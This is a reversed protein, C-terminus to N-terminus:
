GGLRKKLDLVAAEAATLVPRGTKAEVAARGPGMSIQGLLILDCDSLGAAVSAVLNDHGAMDGKALFALAGPVHSASVRLPRRHALAAATLARDLLNVTGPDTALAGVHRAGSAIVADVASAYSSLVPVGMFPRGADVCPTFFSGTVLIADSGVSECYQMLALTRRYCEANPADLTGRERYLSEDFVSSRVAEPWHAAFAAEMARMSGPVPHIMGITRTM